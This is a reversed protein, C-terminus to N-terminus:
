FELFCLKFWKLPEGILFLGAYAVANALTPLKLGESQVKM